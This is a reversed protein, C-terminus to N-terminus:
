RPPSPASRRGDERFLILCPLQNNTANSRRPGRTRIGRRGTEMDILRVPPQARATSIAKQGVYGFDDGRYTLALGSPKVTALTDPAPRKRPRFIEDGAITSADRARTIGRRYVTPREADNADNFRRYKVLILAVRSYRGSVDRWPGEM